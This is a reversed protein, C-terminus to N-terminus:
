YKCYNRLMLRPVMNMSTMEQFLLKCAYPVAITSVSASSHCAHCWGSYALRGCLNCVDINFADSAIMLREVLLM